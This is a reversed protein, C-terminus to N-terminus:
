QAKCTRGKRNDNILRSAFKGKIEGKNGNYDGRM